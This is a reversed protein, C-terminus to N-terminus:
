VILLIEINKPRNKKSKKANESTEVKANEKNKMKMEFKIEKSPPSLYTDRNRKCRTSRKEQWLEEFKSENTAQNREKDDSKDSSQEERLGSM